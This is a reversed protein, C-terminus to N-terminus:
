IEFDGYVSNGNANSFVLTYDGSPLGALSIDLQGEVVPNVNTSYVIQGSTNVIKVSINNLDDL